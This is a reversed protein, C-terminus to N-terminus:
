IARLGYERALEGSAPDYLRVWYLGAPIQRTVTARISEQEVAAPAPSRWLLRGRADALEIHYSAAPLAQADLDLRLSRNAPVVVAGSPEPGRLAALRVDVAPTVNVARPALTVVAMAALALAATMPAPRWGVSLWQRFRSREAAANFPPPCGRAAIPFARVFDDTQELREQCARCILLHEELVSAENNAIRGLSYAELVDEDIHTIM